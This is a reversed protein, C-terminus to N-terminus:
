ATKKALFSWVGGVLTVAGGIIETIIADDVLGRTMLLGGAFTLVHRVLGQVQEKTLKM